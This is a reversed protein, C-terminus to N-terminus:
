TKLERLIQTIQKKLKPIDEKVTKWVTSSKIGLYNHILKDRTGAIEKWLIQSHQKRM